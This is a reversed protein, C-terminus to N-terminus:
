RGWAAGKKYGAPYDLSIVVLKIVGLTRLETTFTISM